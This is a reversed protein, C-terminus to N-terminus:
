EHFNVRVNQGVRWAVAGEAGASLPPDFVLFCDVVRQGGRPSSGDDELRTPGMVAALRVVRASRFAAAGGASSDVTVEAKMGARVKAAFSENLEARVQLPRDPLLVLLAPTTDVRTGPQALLRVVRGETPASLVLRALQAQAQALRRSAVQTDAAAVALSADLERAAQGADDARQRDLGGAAAAEVLRAAYQRAAPLRVAQAQQRARAAQVEAEALAIDARAATDALRLLAQGRRVHDGEAVAVSEVWGGAPAGLEILGGPVEIKGRAMAVPAAGRPAAAAQAQAAPLASDTAPGCAALLSAFLSLLAIKSHKHM